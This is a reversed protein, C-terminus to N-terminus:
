EERNDEALKRFDSEDFIDSEVLVRFEADTLDDGRKWREKLQRPHYIRDYEYQIDVDVGVVFKAPLADEEGSVLDSRPEFTAIELAEELLSKFPLGAEDCAHKSLAVGNVLGWYLDDGAQIDGFM